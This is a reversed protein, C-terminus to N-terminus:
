NREGLQQARRVLEVFEKRYGHPDHALAPTALEIVIPYTLTGKYPSNRLLMGFGAVASALKLDVSAQSYDLGQDIVAHEVQIGKDGEPKKYRLKVVFSEPSDGKVRAPTVFKSENSAALKSGKGTPVLEYLATVHHGAGIEGADKADNKFDANAMVRNEYGILRYAEIKAPNFDVQVKVDKAITMLTSGMQRVLVRYAEESSDIYAYNGNGKDALVELTNDKLNGMGFGLVTLFVKSKAKAEILKILDDRQTIGVNFDGDTALIVRNIGSPKFNKVAIDYSEQIGAGANTSGQAVLQDIKSLIEARHGADCLTSPLFLGSAGAYVVIALSDRGDLQEVLRSVSWKVLPLKNSDAMSGSVDILFVLNGPPRENQHIPKGAIGIRALRHDANWPCRAVEVRIAFPDVSGPLPPSDEYSFYNLLEEVRVADPPPLQNMQLLYRRVNAYSATDVDISFTSLTEPLTPVFPNEVIRDFAENGAAVGEPAAARAELVPMEGAVNQGEGRNQQQVLAPTAALAKAEPAAAAPAQPPLAGYQATQGKTGTSAPAQQLLKGSASQELALTNAQKQGQTNRQAYPGSRPATSNTDVGSKEGLAARDYSEALQEAGVDSKKGLAVQPGKAGERYHFRADSQPNARGRTVARELSRRGMVGRAQGNSSMGAAQGGMGGARGMGGMMMRSPAAPKSESEGTSVMPSPQSSVLSAGGASKRLTEEEAAAPSAPAARTLDGQKFKYGMPDPRSAERFMDVRAQISEKLELPASHAVTSKPTASGQSPAGARRKMAPALRGADAQPSPPSTTHLREAVLDPSMMVARQQALHPQYARWSLLGITGGLVLTAAMSLLGYHKRWFPRNNLELPKKQLTQEILEHDASALGAASKGEKQLEESLWRATQRIEDIYKRAEDSEAVLREIEPHQSPDLEGLAYATLRPDDTDFIM